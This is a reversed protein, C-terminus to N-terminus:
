KQAEQERMKAAIEAADHPHSEHPRICAKLDEWRKALADREAEVRTLRADMLEFRARLSKIGVALATMCDDADEIEIVGEDREAYALAEDVTM